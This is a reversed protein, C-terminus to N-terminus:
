KVFAHWDHTAKLPLRELKKSFMSTESIFHINWNRKLRKKKWKLFVGSINAMLLMFADDNLFLSAAQHVLADISGRQRYVPGNM